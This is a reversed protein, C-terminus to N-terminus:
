DDGSMAGRAIEVDHPVDRHLRNWNVHGVRNMWLPNRFNSEALADIFEKWFAMGKM